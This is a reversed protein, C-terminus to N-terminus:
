VAESAAAREGARILEPMKEPVSRGWFNSPAQILHVIEGDIIWDLGSARWRITYSHMDQALDVAHRITNRRRRDDYWYSMHVEHGDAGPFCWALENHADTGHVHTSLCTLVNDPAPGGDPAHGVRAVFTFDGFGYYAMTGLHGVAIQADQGCTAGQDDMKLRVGWQTLRTGYKVHSPEMCSLTGDTLLADHGEEFIKLALGRDSFDVDFAKSSSDVLRRWLHRWLSHALDSMREAVMTM